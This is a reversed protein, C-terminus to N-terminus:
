IVVRGAPRIEHSGTSIRSFAKESLYGTVLQAEACIALDRQLTPQVDGFMARLGLEVGADHHRIMDMPDYHQNIARVWM